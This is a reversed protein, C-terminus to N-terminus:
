KGLLVTQVTKEFEEKSTAGKMLQPEGGKPIFVFLPISSARFVQALERENDINVKYVSISPYKEAIAEVIPAMRRCPGCWDAYLDILVPGDAKNVWEKETSYDFILKKFDAATMVKVKEVAQEERQMPTSAYTATFSGSLFIMMSVLPVIHSLRGKFLMRKKM